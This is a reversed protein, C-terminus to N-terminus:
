EALTKNRSRKRPKRTDTRGPSAPTAASEAPAQWTPRYHELYGLLDLEDDLNTYGCAKVEEIARANSWHEQEMRYIAVYAGTRHIGAFCHVLVPYNSPDAMVERFTRVGKEVPPPMGPVDSEWHAPAIRIYNLEMLECYAEEELDPPREGPTYSDRLTVITKIKHDHIVQKLASLPLQASRYLVGERVVRFGRHQAQSYLAYRWPVGILLAAIALGLYLEVRRPM